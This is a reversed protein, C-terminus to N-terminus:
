KNEINDDINNNINNDKCENNNTIIYPIYKNKLTVSIKDNQMFVVIRINNNIMAELNLALERSKDKFTDNTPYDDCGEIKYNFIKLNNGENNVCYNNVNEVIEETITEYNKDKLIIADNIYPKIKFTIAKNIIDFYINTTVTKHSGKKSFAISWEKGIKKANYLDNPFSNWLPTNFIVTGVIPKVKNLFKALMEDSTGDDNFIMNNKLSKSYKRLEVSKITNEEVNTSFSSYEMNNNNNNM